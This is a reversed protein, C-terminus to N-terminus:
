LLFRWRSRLGNSLAITCDTMYNGNNAFEIAADVHDITSLRGEVDCGYTVQIINTGNNGLSMM